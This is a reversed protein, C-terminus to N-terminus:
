LQIQVARDREALDKHVTVTATPWTAKALREIRHPQLPDCEFILCGGPRLAAPAQQIARRIADLGDEGGALAWAPEYGLEPLATRRRAASLYPLNAVILDAPSVSRLLDGRRLEIRSLLRHEAVNERAVALAKQDVDIGSVRVSPVARAIAIAIAASGTGLDIVRRASPRARLWEIALDVLLETNPRPILVAPSVRLRHGYFEKRGTLYAVPVHAIRREVLDRFRRREVATLPREPHTHLWTREVNLVHALLVEADLWGDYNGSAKLSARASSLQERITGRKGPRAM